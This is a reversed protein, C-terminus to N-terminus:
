QVIRMDRVSLSSRTFTYVARTIAGSAVDYRDLTDAGGGSFRHIVSIFVTKGDPSLSPVFPTGTFGGIRSGTLGAPDIVALEASEKTVHARASVTSYSLQNNFNFFSGSDRGIRITDSTRQAASAVDVQYLNDCNSDWLMVRGTNTFATDNPFTACNTPEGPNTIAIRTKLALSSANILYLAPNSGGDTTAVALTSGDPSLSIGLPTDPSTQLVQSVTNPGTDIAVVSEYASVYLRHGNAAIVCDCPYAVAVTATVAGSNANLAVVAGNTLDTVYCRFNHSGLRRVALSTVERQGISFSGVTSMTALDVIEIASNPPADDPAFDDTLLAILVAGSPHPPHVRPVLLQESLDAVFTKGSEHALDRSEQETPTQTTM